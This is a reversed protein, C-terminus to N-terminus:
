YEQAEYLTRLDLQEVEVNIRKCFQEMEQPFIDVEEAITVESDTQRIIFTAVIENDQREYYDKIRAGAGAIEIFDPTIDKRLKPAIRFHGTAGIDDYFISQAKECFDDVSIEKESSFRLAFMLLNKGVQGKAPDINLLPM